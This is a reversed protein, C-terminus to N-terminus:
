KSLKFLINEREEARIQDILGVMEDTTLLIYEGTLDGGSTIYHLIFNLWGYLSRSYVMGSVYCKGDTKIMYDGFKRITYQKKEM